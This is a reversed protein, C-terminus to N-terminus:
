FAQGLGFHFVLRSLVGSNRAPRFTAPCASVDARQADSGGPSACYIQGAQGNSGAAFYLAQGAPPDYPAYGIDVRFPGLPTVVRVGLGPTVRLNALRLPTS